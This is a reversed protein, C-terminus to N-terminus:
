KREVDEDKQKLVMQLMWSRITSSPVLSTFLSPFLFLSVAYLSLSFIFFSLKSPLPPISRPLHLYHPNLFHLFHTFILNVQPHFVLLLHYYSFTPSHSHSFPLSHPLVLSVCFCLSLSIRMLIRKIGNKLRSTM